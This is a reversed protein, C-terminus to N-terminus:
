RMTSNVTAAGPRPRCWRPPVSWPEPRSPWVPGASAVSAVSRPFESCATIARLRSRSPAVRLGHHSPAMGVLGGGSIERRGSHKAGGRRDLTPLSCRGAHGAEVGRPGGRGSICFCAARARLRMSSQQRSRSKEIKGIMFLRVAAGTRTRPLGPRNCQRCLWPLSSSPSREKVRGPIRLATSNSQVRRCGRGM